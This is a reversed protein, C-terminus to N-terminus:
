LKEPTKWGITEDKDTACIERSSMEAMIFSKKPIAASWVHDCSKLPGPTELCALCVRVILRHPAAAM